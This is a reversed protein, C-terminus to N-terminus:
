MLLFTNHIAKAVKNQSQGLLANSLVKLGVIGGGVAVLTTLYDGFPSEFFKKM